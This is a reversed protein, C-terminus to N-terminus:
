KQSKGMSALNQDSLFTVGISFFSIKPNEIGEHFLINLKNDFEANLVEFNSRETDLKKVRAKHQVNQFDRILNLNKLSKIIQEKVSNNELALTEFKKNLNEINDKWNENVFPFLNNNSLSKWMTKCIDRDYKNKFPEDLTDLIKPDEVLDGFENIWINLTIPPFFLDSQRKLYVIFNNFKSKPHQDYFTVLKDLRPTVTVNANFFLDAKRNIPKYGHLFRWNAFSTGREDLDSFETLGEFFDNGSRLLSIDSELNSNLLTERDCTYPYTVYHRRKPDSASIDISGILHDKIKDVPLDSIGEKMKFRIIEEGIKTDDDLVKVKILRLNRLYNNTVALVDIIGKNLYDSIQSKKPADIYKKHINNNEFIQETIQTEHGIYSFKIILNKNIQYTNILDNKHQLDSESSVLFKVAKDDNDIKLADCFWSMLSNKINLNNKDFAILKNIREDVIENALRLRSRREIFKLENELKSEDGSLENLFNNFADFGIEAFDNFLKNIEQELFIQLSSASRNFIKLNNSLFDSWLVEYKNSINRLAYIIFPYSGFRDVRGIRQEIRNVNFPLDFFILINDRGQLNLGEEANQNCILIDFDLNSFNNGEKFIYM